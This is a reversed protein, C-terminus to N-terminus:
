KIAEDIIEKMNLYVDRKPEDSLTKTFFICAYNRKLDIYPWTGFLGPCSLVSPNGNEDAEQVWAGLAYNYGQTIKPAYKIMDPTTYTKCMLAVSEESLVRKGNYLGKNLLMSMFAIYDKASSKGGGSPDIAEGGDNQFNTKRLGLPRTIREQILRDFPKKSVIECVRAAVDLGVNGYFFQKGPRDVIDKKAAIANVEDELSAYKKKELMRSLTKTDSEIGTTQTLCDKIRINGKSYAVFSSIYKSLEDDLSIKGEDVFTMVVATTIWKSCSAIPEQSDEKMEGTINKYVIEGDKYILVVSNNGFVKQNNKIADDLASFNYKSPPPLQKKSQTQAKTIQFFLMFILAISCYRRISNSKQSM